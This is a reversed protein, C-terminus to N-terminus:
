KEVSRVCDGVKTPLHKYDRPPILPMRLHGLTSLGEVIMSQQNATNVDCYAPSTQNFLLYAPPTLILAGTLLIKNFSYM